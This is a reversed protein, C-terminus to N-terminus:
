ANRLEPDSDDDLIVTIHEENLFNDAILRADSRVLEIWNEIEESKLDAVSNLEAFLRGEITQRANSYAIAGIVIAPLFAMLLLALLLRQRMKLSLGPNRGSANESRM